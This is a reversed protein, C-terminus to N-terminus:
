EKKFQFVSIKTEPRNSKGTSKQKNQNSQDMQVVCVLESSKVGCNKLLSQVTALFLYIM